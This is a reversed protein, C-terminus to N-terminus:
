RSLLFAALGVAVAVFFWIAGASVTAGRWLRPRSTAHLSPTNLTGLVQEFDPLYKALLATKTKMAIQVADRGSGAVFYACTIDTGAEQYSVRVEVCHDSGAFPFIRKTLLKGNSMGREHAAHKVLGDVALDVLAKDPPDGAVHLCLVELLAEEDDAMCALRAGHSRPSVRHWHPPFALSFLGAPEDFREWGAPDRRVTSLTPASDARAQRIEALNKAIRASAPNIAHARELYREAEARMGLNFLCAAISMLYNDSGPALRLARRYTAIAGALDDDNAQAEAEGAIADVGLAWDVDAASIRNALVGEILRSAVATQEDDGLAVLHAPRQGAVSTLAKLQQLQAPGVWLLDLQWRRLPEVSLDQAMDEPSLTM